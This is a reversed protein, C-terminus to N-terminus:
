FYFSFVFNLQFIGKDSFEENLSINYRLAPEISFDSGLFIAYGGQFGLWLPNEDADKISAGTLDLQFPFTEAVYYKAGLRYSFSNTKFDEHDTDVKYGGYGLGFKLALDDIIFYGGDIGINYINVDETSVYQLSTSGQMISLEGL